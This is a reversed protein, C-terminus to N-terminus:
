RECQNPQRPGTNRMSEPRTKVRNSRTSGFPVSRPQEHDNTGKRPLFGHKPGDLIKPRSLWIVFEIIKLVHWSVVVAHQHAFHTWRWRCHYGDGDFLNNQARETPGNPGGSSPIWVCTRGRGLFSNKEPQMSDTRHRCGILILEDPLYYKWETRELAGHLPDLCAREPRTKVGELRSPVNTISYYKMADVCIIAASQNDFDLLNWANGGHRFIQLLFFHEFM